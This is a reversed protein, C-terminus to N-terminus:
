LNEGGNEPGTGAEFRLEMRYSYELETQCSTLMNSNGECSHDPRTANVERTLGNKTGRVRCCNKAESSTSTVVTVEVGTEASSKPWKESWTCHAFLPM